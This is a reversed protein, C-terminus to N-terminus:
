EIVSITHQIYGGIPNDILDKYSPDISFRNIYKIHDLIIGWICTNYYELTIIHIISKEQESVEKVIANYQYLIIIYYLINMIFILINMFIYIM